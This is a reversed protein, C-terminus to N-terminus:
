PQALPATGPPLVRLSQAITADDRVYSDASFDTTDPGWYSHQFYYRVGSRKDTVVVNHQGAGDGLNVTESRIYRPNESKTRRGPPFPDPQTTDDTSHVRVDEENVPFTRRLLASRKVLAEGPSVHSRASADQMQYRKGTSASVYAASSSVPQGLSAPYLFTYRTGDARPPSVYRAYHISRRAHPASATLIVAMALILAAGGSLWLPSRRSSTKGVFAM